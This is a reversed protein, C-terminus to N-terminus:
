RDVTALFTMAGEPRPAQRGAIRWDFFIEVLAKMRQINFRIKGLVTRIEIPTEGELHCCDQLQSM